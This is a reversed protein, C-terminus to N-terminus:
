ETKNNFSHLTEKIYEIMTENITPSCGVFFVRDLVETAIPYNRYDDLYQYAPHLLINGAFYNRTQIKNQELFAVLSQKQEKDSCIIPVGFWSPDADNRKKIVRIGDIEEFYKEIKNKIEKRKRDIEDFKKLQISGVAGQLDNPKLNYGM